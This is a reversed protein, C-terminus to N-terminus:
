CTSMYQGAGQIEGMKRPDFFKATGADWAYFAEAGRALLRGLPALVQVSAHPEQQTQHQKPMAPAKTAIKSARFKCVLEAWKVPFTVLTWTQLIEGNEAWRTICRVAPVKWAVGPRRPAARCPAAWRLWPTRM